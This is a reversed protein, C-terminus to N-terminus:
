HCEGWPVEYGKIIYSTNPPCRLCDMRIFHLRAIRNLACPTDFYSWCVLLTPPYLARLSSQQYPFKGTWSLGRELLMYGFRYDLEVGVLCYEVKQHSAGYMVFRPRGAPFYGVHQAVIITVLFRSCPIDSASVVLLTSFHLCLSTCCEPQSCELSCDTVPLGLGSFLM